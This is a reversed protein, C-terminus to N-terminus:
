GIGLEEARELWIEALSESKATGIGYYYCRGVEYISQSDGRLAAKLYLKFVEEDTYKESANNEYYVALDYMANTVNKEAAYQLLSVAKPIDEDVHEGHLYWTALAYSALADGSTHADNLLKFVLNKNPKKSRMEELAREYFNNV